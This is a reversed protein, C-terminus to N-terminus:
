WVRWKGSVTCWIMMAKWTVWYCHDEGARPIKLSSQRIKALLNAQYVCRFMCWSWPYSTPLTFYSSHREWCHFCLLLIYYHVRQQCQNLQFCVIAIVIKFFIRHLRLPIEVSWLSTTTKIHIWIQPVWKSNYHCHLNHICQPNLWPSHSPVGSYIANVVEVALFFSLSPMKMIEGCHLTDHETGAARGAGCWRSGLYKGTPFEDFTTLNGYVMCVMNYPMRYLDNDHDAWSIVNLNTLRLLSATNTSVQLRQTCLAIEHYTM